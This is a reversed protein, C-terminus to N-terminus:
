KSLLQEQLLPTLYEALTLTAIATDITAVGEPETMNHLCASAIREKLTCYDPDQTLFYPMAGPYLQELHSINAIADDDPMTFRALEVCNNTTSGTTGTTASCCDSVIGVSDDGGCRDAAVSVEQGTKTTIKFKIKDFDTYENGSVPGRLTQCSSHDKDATVSAITDVTVGYFTVLIALEHIAMNKLMGECNREFCEPLDAAAYANNHLFTVHHRTRNSSSSSSSSADSAAASRAAFDRTRGVYASVNKNFGMYVRVGAAAAVDRMAKLARVTPAGPKELYIAQFRAGGRASSSSSSLCCCAELLAPNDATRASLIALRVEGEVVAEPIEQVTAYFKIGATGNNNAAEKEKRWAHFEAYGPVTNNADAQMYFPEVIAVLKASPCRGALLQEAHYWGMSKLPCGCGVLIVSAQHTTPSVDVM